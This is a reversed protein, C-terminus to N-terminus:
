GASCRGVARDSLLGGGACGNVPARHTRGTGAPRRDPNSRDGARVGPRYQSATWRRGASQCGGPRGAAGAAARGHGPGPLGARRARGPRDAGVAGGGGRDLGGRRPGRRRGARMGGPGLGGGRGGGPHARRAGAGARRAPGTGLGRRRAGGTGGPPWRGHVWSGIDGRAAPLAASSRGTLLVSVATDAAALIGAALIVAGGRPARRRDGGRRGLHGRRGAGAGRTRVM